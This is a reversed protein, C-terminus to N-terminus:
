WSGLFVSWSKHTSISRNRLCIVWSFALCFCVFNKDYFHFPCLICLCMSASVCISVFRHIHVHAPTQFFVCFVLSSFRSLQTVPTPPLFFIFGGYVFVFVSPLLYSTVFSRLTALKRNENRIACKVSLLPPPPPLPSFSIDLFYLSFIWLSSLGGFLVM